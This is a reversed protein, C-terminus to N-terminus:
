PMPQDGLQTSQILRDAKFGRSLILWSTNKLCVFMLYLPLITFLFGPHMCVVDELFDCQKATGVAYPNGM